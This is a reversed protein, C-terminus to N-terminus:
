EEEIDNNSIWEYSGDPTSVYSPREHFTKTIRYRPKPPGQDIWEYFESIHNKESLASNRLELYWAGDERQIWCAVVHDGFIIFQKAM